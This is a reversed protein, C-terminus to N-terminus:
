YIAGFTEVVISQIQFRYPFFMSLLLITWPYQLCQCSKLNIRYMRHSIKIGILNKLDNTTNCKFSCLFIVMMKTAFLTDSNYFSFNTKTICNVESILAFINKYYIITVFKRHLHMYLRELGIPNYITCLVGAKVNRCFM